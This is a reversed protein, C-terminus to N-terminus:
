SQLSSYLAPDVTLLDPLRLACRKITKIALAFGEDPHVHFYALPPAASLRRGIEIRHFYMSIM